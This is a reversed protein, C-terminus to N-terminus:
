PHGRVASAAVTGPTRAARAWTGAGGGTGSRGGPGTTLGVAGRGCGGVAASVTRASASPRTRRGRTGPLRHAVDDHERVRREPAGEQAAELPQLTPRRREM